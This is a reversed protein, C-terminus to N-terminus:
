HYDVNCSKRSSSIGPQRKDYMSTTRFQRDCITQRMNTNRLPISRIFFIISINASAITTLTTAHDRQLVRGISNDLPYLAAVRWIQDLDASVTAVCVIANTKSVGNFLLESHLHM